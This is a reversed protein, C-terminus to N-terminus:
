RIVLAAHIPLEELKVTLVGAEYTWPAEGGPVMRVGCPPAELKVRVTIERAPPLDEVM